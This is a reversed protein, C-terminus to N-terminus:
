NDLSLLLIFIFIYYGVFMYIDCSLTVIINLVIMIECIVYYVIMQIKIIVACTVNKELYLLIFM